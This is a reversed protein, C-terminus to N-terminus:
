SVGSELPGEDLVHLCGSHALGIWLIADASSLCLSVPCVVILHESFHYVHRDNEINEV